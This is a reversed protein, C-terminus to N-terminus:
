IKRKFFLHQCYHAFDFAAIRYRIGCVCVYMSCMYVILCCAKLVWGGSLSRDIHSQEVHLLLFVMEPVINV